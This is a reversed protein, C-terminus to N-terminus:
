KITARYMRFSLIESVAIPAKAATIPSAIVYSKQKKCKRQFRENFAVGTLKTRAIIHQIPNIM